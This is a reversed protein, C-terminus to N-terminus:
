GSIRRILASVLEWTEDDEVTGTHPRRFRSV